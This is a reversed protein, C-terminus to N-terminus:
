PCLFADAASAPMEMGSYALVRQSGHNVTWVNDGGVNPTTEWTVSADGRVLYNGKGGHNPSNHNTDEATVTVPVGQGVFLPNRDALVILTASGNWRPKSTGTGYVHLYSYDSTVDDPRGAGTQGGTRRQTVGACQLNALTLYKGQIAPLLNAANTHATGPENSQIWNHSAPMALVPLQGGFDGAYSEIGKGVSSLNQACAVRAQSHHSQQLGVFVVALLISAAVAMAGFEAIRRSWRRRVHPTLDVERSAAAAPIRMRDRQVAALTRELLDDSAAPVPTASLVKLWEQVRGERAADLAGDGPLTGGPPEAGERGLLKDVVAADAPSLAPGRADSGNSHFQETM